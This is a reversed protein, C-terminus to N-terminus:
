RDSCKGVTQALDILLRLDKGSATYNDVLHYLMSSLEFVLDTPHPKSGTVEQHSSIM